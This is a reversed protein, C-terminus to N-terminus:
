RKRDAANARPESSSVRSADNRTTQAPRYFSDDWWSPSAYEEWTVWSTAVVIDDSRYASAMSQAIREMETDSLKEFEGRAFGPFREVREKPVAAVIRKASADLGVRGIPILFYKHKFWHGAEVVVHYPRGTDVDVIFGDVKGLKEDAPDVIEAGSFKFTKDDLDDAEVYRLWPRPHDM